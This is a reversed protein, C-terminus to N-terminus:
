LKKEVALIVSAALDPDYNDANENLSDMNGIAWKFYNLPVDDMLEGKHKGFPMKKYIIPEKLWELIQPGYPITQDIIKDNEMKDLIVELLKATIYSDNGARHCHMEIPVDLNFCFRLYPLNTHEVSSDDNFLKKVMRWTCIFEKNAFNIGHNKLVQEDFFSNHAIMYNFGNVIDQFKDKVNTFIPKDVVMADTIYCISQVIPPIPKGPNHLEQFITWENNDKIAVGTEVIIATRFNDSDTETDLVLCQKLFEARYSM